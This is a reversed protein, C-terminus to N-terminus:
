AQSRGIKLLSVVQELLQAVDQSPTSGGAGTLESPPAGFARQGLIVRIKTAEEDSLPSCYDSLTELQVKIAEAWDASRRHKNAEAALYTSLGAAALVATAHSILVSVTLGDGASRYAFWAALGLVAIAAIRLSDALRRQTQSLNNFHTALGQAGREGRSEKIEQVETALGEIQVRADLRAREAELKARELDLSTEAYLVEDLFAGLTRRTKHAQAKDTLDDSNRTQASIAARLSWTIGALYDSLQEFRNAPPDVVELAELLNAMTMRLSHIIEVDTSFMLGVGPPPSGAFQVSDACARLVLDIVPVTQKPVGNLGVTGDTLRRQARETILRLKDIEDRDTVARFRVATAVSRLGLSPEGRGTAGSTRASVPGAGGYAM